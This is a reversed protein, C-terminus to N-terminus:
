CSRSVFAADYVGICTLVGGSATEAAGSLESGAVRVVTTGAAQVKGYLQGAVIRSEGGAGVFAYSNAVASAVSRMRVARADFLGATVRAARAVNTAEAAWTGGVATTTAASFLATATGNAASNSVSVDVDNLVATGFSLTAGLTQAGAGSARLALDSLRVDTNDTHLAWGASGDIELSRLTVAGSTAQVAPSASGTLRTTKPGAGELAMYPKLTLVTGGLDYRGPEIRVLTGRNLSGDPASEVASRLAAGNAAFDNGTGAPSVVYTRAYAFDQGDAGAPGTPGVAGDEGDAGAPGTPGAAGAAGDKGAPGADGKVGAPLQGAKFDAALLSGDAVAQTGVAGRKIKKATVANKKLQATGVSNRPLTAAYSVGGLAVFLALYGIANSRLHGLM